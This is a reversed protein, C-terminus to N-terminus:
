LRALDAIIRRARTVSAIMLNSLNVVTDDYDCRNRDDRLRHLQSGIRRRRPDTHNEYTRAVFIHVTGSRPISIKDVDRLRNRALIFAAYYARSVSSRQLAELGFPRGTILEGGLDEALSLYEGWDFSV